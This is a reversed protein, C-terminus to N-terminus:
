NMKQKIYLRYQNIKSYFRLIIPIVSLHSHICIPYIIKYPGPMERLCFQRNLKNLYQIMFEKKDKNGIKKDDLLSWIARLVYINKELEIFRSFSDDTIHHIIKNELRSKYAVEAYYILNTHKVQVSTLSDSRRKVYIYGSCYSFQVKKSYLFFTLSFLHDEGLSIRTDFQLNNDVIIERRFLKFCVSNFIHLKEASIYISELDIQKVSSFSPFTIVEIEGRFNKIKYGQICLDFDIGEQLFSSLYNTDVLDDSDVFCVFKGKAKSIGLNRASSVGSNIQHFVRIRNEQLAYEECIDGSRDPSGDNVLILEWNLFTQNLISDLCDRLFYECKYVPIIISIDVEELM